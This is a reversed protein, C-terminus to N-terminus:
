LGSGLPYRSEPSGWKYSSRAGGLLDLSKLDSPKKYRPDNLTVADYTGQKVVGAVSDLIKWSASPTFAPSVVFSPFAGAWCLRCEGPEFACVKGMEETLRLASLGDFRLHAVVADFFLASHFLCYEGTSHVMGDSPAGDGMAELTLAPLLKSPFNWTWVYRGVMMMM